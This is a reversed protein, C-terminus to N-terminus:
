DDAIYLIGDGALWIRAVRAEDCLLRFHVKLRGTNAIRDVKTWFRLEENEVINPEILTEIVTKVIDVRLRAEPIGALLFAWIQAVLRSIFLAVEGNGRHVMELVDPGFDDQRELADSNLHFHMVMCNRRGTLGFDVDSEILQSSHRVLELHVLVDGLINRSPTTFRSREHRFRQELIISGPHMAMLADPFVFLVHEVFGVAIGTDALGAQMVDAAQQFMRGGN